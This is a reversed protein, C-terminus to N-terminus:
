LVEFYETAHGVPMEVARGDIFEETGNPDCLQTQDYTNETTSSPTPLRYVTHSGDTIMDVGDTADGAEYSRYGFNNVKLGRPQLEDGDYYLNKDADLRLIGYLTSQPLQYTGIVVGNADKTVHASTKVSLLAGAEAAHWGAGMWARLWAAGTGAEAQELGYIYDAITSGFMQTLDFCELNEVVFDIESTVLSGGTYGRFACVISKNVECKWIFTKETRDAIVEWGTWGDVTANTPLFAIMGNTTKVTYIILYKHGSISMKRQASAIQLNCQGGTSSNKHVTAVGSTLTYSDATGVSWKGTEIYPAKQNYCVTGGIIKDMREVGANYPTDRKLYPRTDQVVRMSGPISEESEKGTELAAITDAVNKRITGLEVSDYHDTLVNYVVKTVPLRVDVGLEPYLVRVTDGLNLQKEDIGFQPTPVIETSFSEAPVTRKATKLAGGLENVLAVQIENRTANYDVKGTMNVLMRRTIPATPMVDFSETRRSKVGNEEKELYAVIKSIQETADTDRSFETMNVSYRITIDRDEGRRKCLYIVERDLDNRYQYRYTGGFTELLSGSGSLMESLMKISGINFKIEEAPNFGDYWVRLFGNGQRYNNLANCANEIGTVTTDVQGTFVEYAADYSIHNARVNITRDIGDTVDYIRFPEGVTDSPRAKCFIINGTKINHGNFGDRKYILELTFEGNEEETVAAALADPMLGYGYATFDRTDAPFVRM